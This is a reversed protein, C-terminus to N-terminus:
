QARNFLNVNQIVNKLVQIGIQGKSLYNEETSHFCDKLLFYQWKKFGQVQM